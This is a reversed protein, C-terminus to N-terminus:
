KLKEKLKLIEYICSVTAIWGLASIWNMMIISILANFAAVWIIVEDRFLWKIM